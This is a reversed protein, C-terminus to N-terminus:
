GGELRIVAETLWPLQAGKIGSMLQIRNVEFTIPELPPLHFDAQQIEQETNLLTVHPNYESGFEGQYPVYDPFISQVAQLLSRLPLSDAPKLYIAKPFFGYQSLTVRFPPIRAGLDALRAAAQEVQDYPVFPYLLTIHAPYWIVQERNIQRRLPLIVAQAVHPLNVMIGTVIEM